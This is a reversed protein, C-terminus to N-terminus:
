PILVAPFRPVPLTVSAMYAHLLGQSQDASWSPVANCNWTESYDAFTWHLQFTFSEFAAILAKVNANLAAQTTGYCWIQVTESVMGPVSHVLYEGALAPSTAKIQANQGTVSERTSQSSVAYNTKDNLNTTGSPTQITLAIVMNDSVTTM